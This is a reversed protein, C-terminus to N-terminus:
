TETLIKRVQAVIWDQVSPELASGSPLCLTQLFVSSSVVETHSHAEFPLRACLPQLHMPKWGPRTEIGLARLRRMLQYVHIPVVDPDLRLVTLWRSGQAEPYDQQFSVGPCDSLGKRYREFIARRAAVRESLVDLQGRGIGALINSM